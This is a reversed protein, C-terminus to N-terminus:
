SELVRVEAIVRFRVVPENIGLSCEVKLRLKFCFPFVITKPVVFIAGLTGQRVFLNLHEPM